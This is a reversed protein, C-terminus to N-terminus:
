REVSLLLRVFARPADPLNVTVTYAADTVTGVGLWDLPVEQWANGNLSYEFRPNVGHSQWMLTVTARGDRGLHLWHGDAPGDHSGALAEEANARADNDPNAQPGWLTAELKPFGTTGAGFQDEAWRDYPHQVTSSILLAPHESPNAWERSAAYTLADTQVLSRLGVSLDESSTQRATLESVPVPVSVRGVTPLFTGLSAGSVPASNWTLSTERWSDRTLFAELTPSEGTRTITWEVRAATMASPLGDLPFRFYSERTYFGSGQVVKVPLESITGFNADAYTDGRIYSDALADIRVEASPEELLTLSVPEEHSLWGNDLLLSFVYTGPQPLHALTHTRGPQGLVASAPGSIQRWRIIRNPPASMNWAVEAGLLVNASTGVLPGVSSQGSRISPELLTLGSRRLLQDRYLSAPELTAGEGVGEIFDEPANRTTGLSTQVRSEAGSTGIVFGLGYQDSNIVYNRSSHKQEGVTNWYTSNSATLGHAVTGWNSRWAADYFDNRATSQDFLNSQSLHMHHDSGRGATRGSGAAQWTTEETACRHFVNGSNRMHSQVIGHRQYRAICRIFLNDQANTVRFTYGNGGGGGYQVRQMVSGRVTVQRSHELLVGNSLMHATTTNGAPQFSHVRRIWGHRLNEVRVLWSAHADYSANAPDTYDNEGWGDTGPHEVNGISFDELGVETLQARTRYVRANDRMKLPYRIPADVTITGAGPDVAVVERFFAPGGLRSGFGGWLGTMQHEAIWEETADAHLVVESGVPFLTTNSVPITMVPSLLDATVPVETTTPNLWSGAGNAVRIVSKARMATSTNEIFTTGVGDGRLIINSGSILLCQDAGVPLSVRYQGEPLYVVGGGALQAANIAAQLSGTSDVAGTPDAGFGIVNFLPGAPNPLPLEGYRYGAQSFDQVFADANFVVSGEPPTWDTPYLTSRWGFLLPWLSLLYVLSAILPARM